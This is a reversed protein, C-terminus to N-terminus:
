VGTFLEVGHAYLKKHEVGNSYLKKHEVGALWFSTGASPFPPIGDNDWLLIWNATRDPTTDRFWASTDETSVYPNATDPAITWGFSDGETGGEPYIRCGFTSENAVDSNAVTASLSTGSLQLEAEGPNFIGRFVLVAFWRNAGNPGAGAMLPLPSNASWQWFGAVLQRATGLTISGKAM